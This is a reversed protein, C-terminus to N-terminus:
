DWEWVRIREVRGRWYPRPILSSWRTARIELDQNNGTNTNSCKWHSLSPRSLLRTVYISLPLCVASHHPGEQITWRLAQPYFLQLFTNNRRTINTFFFCLNCRDHEPGKQRCSMMTSRESSRGGYNCVLFPLPGLFSPIWWTVNLPINSNNPPSYKSNNSFQQTVIYNVRVPVTIHPHCCPM